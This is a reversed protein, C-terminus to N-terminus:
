LPPLWRPLSWVPWAGIARAQEAFPRAMRMVAESM